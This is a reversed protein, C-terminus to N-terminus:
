NFSPDLLKRSNLDLKQIQLIASQWNQVEAGFHVALLNAQRMKHINREDDDVLVRIGLNNCQSVKDVQPTALSFFSYEDNILLGYDILGWKKLVRRVYQRVKADTAGNIDCGRATILHLQYGMGILTKIATDAGPMMQMDAFFRPSNIQEHRLSQYIAYDADTFGYREQSNLGKPNCVRYGLALAIEGELVAMAAANNTNIVGDFDVGINM